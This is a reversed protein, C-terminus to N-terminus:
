KQSSMGYKPALPSFLEQPKSITSTQANHHCQERCANDTSCLFYSPEMSDEMHLGMQFASVPTQLFFWSIVIFTLSTFISKLSVGFGLSLTPNILQHIRTELHDLNSIAPVTAFQLEPGVLIKKLANKLYSSDKQVNIVFKDALIENATNMNNNLESFIPLFFFTSAITKGLLIKFPDRNILHAQEHLFVAQLEKSSLGNVLRTTIIIHPSFIRFCFSFLNKDKILHVKDELGLSIIINKIKRPILVQKVLLGKVLKQTKWLQVLFSLIGVMLEAALIFVISNPLSKPIELLTNSVFQQCFYLTRSTILPFTKVFLALTVVGAVLSLLILGLFSGNCNKIRM